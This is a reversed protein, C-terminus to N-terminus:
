FGLYLKRWRKWNPDKAGMDQNNSEPDQSSDESLVMVIEGPKGYGLKERVQREMFYPTQVESLQRNLQENEKEAQALKRQAEEVRGGAKWLRYVNGATRIVLILGIVLWLWSTVKVRM